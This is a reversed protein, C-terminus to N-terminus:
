PTRPVRPNGAHVPLSAEPNPPEAISARTRWDENRRFGNLTGSAMPTWTRPDRFTVSPACLDFDEMDFRAGFPRAGLIPVDLLVRGVVRLPRSPTFVVDVFPFDTAPSGSGRSRLTAINANVIQLEHAFKAQAVDRDVRMAVRGCRRRAVPVAEHRPPLRTRSSAGIRTSRIGASTRLRGTRRPVGRNKSEALAKTM